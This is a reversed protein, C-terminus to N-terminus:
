FLGRHSWKVALVRGHRDLATIKRPHRDRAFFHDFFKLNNLWPQAQRNAIPARRPHIRVHGGGALKVKLIHVARSTVGSLDATGRSNLDSGADATFAFRKPLPLPLGTTYGFTHKPGSSYKFDVLATGDVRRAKIEWLIGDNFGTAVVDRDPPAPENQAGPSAGALSLLM